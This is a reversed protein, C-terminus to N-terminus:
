CLSVGTWPLQYSLASWLIKNTLPPDWNQTAKRQSFDLSEGLACACEEVENDGAKDDESPKENPSVWPKSVM